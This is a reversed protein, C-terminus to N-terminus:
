AKPLNLAQAGRPNDLAYLLKDPGDAPVRVSGQVVMGLRELIQCSRLNGPLAIALICPLRLDAFGHHVVAQAAELAYGQGRGEPLFAFGLDAAPLGDRRVLGCVGIPADPLGTARRSVRYLGHRYARYMALPGTRLYEFADDLERVGKDGIFALWQPDNLLKLIFAADNLTLTDISLRATTAVNM